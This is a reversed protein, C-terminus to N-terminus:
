SGSQNITLSASPNGAVFNITVFLTRISTSTNASVTFAITAPATPGTTPSTFTIGSSGTANWTGCAGPPTGAEPTIQATITGSAGSGIAFPNQGNVAITTIRCFAPSEPQQRVTVSASGGTWSVTMTGIRGVFSANPQYTFRLTADGSGSANAPSIWNVDTSAQWGCSGATRTITLSFSSGPAPVDLNGTPVVTYACNASPRHLQLDARSIDPVAVNQEGSEYGGASARMRFTEAVLGGLSYAGASNTTTAKGVNAGNIAEVRAGEIGGNTDRDTIFGTLTFTSPAPLAPVDASGEATSDSTSAADRYTIRALVRTAYAHSADADTTVLERTECSANAGCANGSSPILQDFRSTIVTTTGSTFTLDVASINAAVGGSEKVRVVVRYVFGTSGRDGAVNVSTVSISAHATPTPTTPTSEKKDSCASALALMALAWVFGVRRSPM